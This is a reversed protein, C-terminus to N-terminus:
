RLMKLFRLIVRAMTSKGYHWINLRLCMHELRTADPCKVWVQGAVRRRMLMTMYSNYYYAWVIDLSTTHLYGHGFSSGAGGELSETIEHVHYAACKEYQTVNGLGQSSHCLKRRPAAPCNHLLRHTRWTRVVTGTSRQERHSEREEM